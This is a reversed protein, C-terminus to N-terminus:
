EDSRVQSQLYAELHQMQVLSDEMLAHIGQWVAATKGAFGTFPASWAVASKLEGIKMSINGSKKRLSEQTSLIEERDNFLQYDKWDIVEM